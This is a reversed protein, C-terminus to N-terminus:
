RPGGLMESLRDVPDDAQDGASSESSAVEAPSWMPNEWEAFGLEDFEVPYQEESDELDFRPLRPPQRPQPSQQPGAHGPGTPYGPSEWNQPAPQEPYTAPQQAPQQDLQLALQQELGIAQSQDLPQDQPQGQDQPHWQHQPQEQHQDQQQREDPDHTLEELEVDIQSTTTDEFGSVRPETAPGMLTATLHESGLERQQPQQTRESGTEETQTGEPRWFWERENTHEDTEDWEERAQELREREVEEPSLIEDRSIVIEDDTHEERGIQEGLGGVRAVEDARDPVRVEPRDATPASPVLENRHATPQEPAPIEGPETQEAPTEIETQHTTEPVTLESRGLDHQRAQDIGVAGALAAGGVAIDSGLEAERARGVVSRGRGVVQSGARVTRGRGLGAHPVVGTTTEDRVQRSDERYDDIQSRVAQRDPVSDVGDEVRGRADTTTETVRERATAAGGGARERAADARDTAHDTGSRVRDTADDVADTVRDAGTEVRDRIRDPTGLAAEFGSRLAGRLRDDAM